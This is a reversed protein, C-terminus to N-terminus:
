TLAARLTGDALKNARELEALSRGQQHLAAVVDARHLNESM